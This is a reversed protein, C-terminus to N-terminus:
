ERPTGREPRESRVLGSSLLWDAVVPALRRHGESSLHLDDLRVEDVRAGALGEAADLFPVDQGKAWRVMGAWRCAHTQAGVSEGVLLPLCLVGFRVGRERATRAMRELPALIRAEAGDLDDPDFSAGTFALWGLNYLFSHDALLRPGRSRSEDLFWGSVLGRGTWVFAQHDNVTIGVVVADPRLPLATESLLAEYQHAAFGGEALNVAEVPGARPELLAPLRAVLGEEDPVIAPMLVSDGLFVIRQGHPEPRPPARGPHERTWLPIGEYERVELVDGEYSGGPPLLVLAGNPHLAFPAFLRALLECVLLAGIWVGALLLRRRGRSM